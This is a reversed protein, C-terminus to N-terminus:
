EIMGKMKFIKVTTLGLKGIIAHTKSIMDNNEVLEDPGLGESQTRDYIGPGDEGDLSSSASFPSAAMMLRSVESVSVFNPDGGKTEADVSLSENIAMTIEEVSADKIRARVKNARYLIKEQDSTFKFEKANYSELLNATMRGLCVSLFVKSYVPNSWKDVGTCLGQACLSVMDILTLSSEPVKSYFIKAKNIALPMNNVILDNRHRMAEKYFGEAADPLSGAWNDRIFNILKYNIRYKKLAKFDGKELAPSIEKSFTKRDVRFYPAATLRNGNTVVIHALFKAYVTNSQAYQCIEKRFDEESKMMRDVQEKQTSGDINAKLGRDVGRVLKAFTDDFKNFKSKRIKESM